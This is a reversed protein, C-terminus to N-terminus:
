ALELVNGTVDALADVAVDVVVLMGVHIIALHASRNALIPAFPLVTAVVNGQARVEAGVRALEMALAAVAVVEANQIALHAYLNVLTLVRQPVLPGAHEGVDQQVDELATMAAVRLVNHVANQIALHVFQSVLIPAHQLAPPIVGGQVLVGVLVSVNLIADAWALEMASDRVVLVVNQIAHHAYRKADM